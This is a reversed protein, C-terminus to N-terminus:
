KKMEIIIMQAVCRGLCRATRYAAYAAIFLIAFVDAINVKGAVNWYLKEFTVTFVMAFLMFDAIRRISM